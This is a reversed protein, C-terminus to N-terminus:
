SVQIINRTLSQSVAGNLEKFFLISTASCDNNLECSCCPEIRGLDHHTFHLHIIRHARSVRLIESSATQLGFKEEPRRTESGTVFFYLLFAHDENVIGDVYGFFFFISILSSWSQKRGERAHLGSEDSDMAAGIVERFALCECHGYIM